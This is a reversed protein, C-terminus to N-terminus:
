ELVMGLRQREYGDFERIRPPDLPTINIRDFKLDVTYDLERCSVIAMLKPHQEIIQQVQPYKADRQNPPLENLGDLLLAARNENLLLDLSEGLSGM